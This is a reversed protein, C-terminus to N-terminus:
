KRRCVLEGKGIPVVLADVRLDHLARDLMPRLTAEHNIANDAVLIGGSVMRPILADYCAGYVEKEADLFCFGVRDFTPLSDLADGHVLEVVDSVGADSFTTHALEAKESLIEFTTIKRGTARCALALWLTSYGASTGIELWQGDPAAAALLAIFKGVEPPIQRLRQM